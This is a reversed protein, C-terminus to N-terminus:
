QVRWGATEAGSYAARLAPQWHAPIGWGLDSNWDSNDLIVLGGRREKRAARELCAERFAGDVLALDFSGDPFDDAVAVYQSSRGRPWEERAEEEAAVPELRYDVNVIAARELDGRVRDFWIRDAEVSALFEVRRAFWLTSAGSGWELMRQSSSLWGGLFRIAAPAIWPEEPYAARYARYAARRALNRLWSSAQATM